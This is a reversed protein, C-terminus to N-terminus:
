NEILDIFYNLDGSIVGFRPIQDEDQEPDFPRDGLKFQLKFGLDQAIEKAEETYYGYPWALSVIEDRKDLQDEMLDRSLRLDRRLRCLYDERSEDPQQKILPKDNEYQHLDYSHSGFTIELEHELLERMNSFSLRESYIIRTELGPMSSIIPFVIAPFDYEKLVPLAYEMFSYYGDDFTLLVSNDPYSEEQRYNFFEEESLVQYNNEALYEMQRAFDEYNMEAGSEPEGEVLHHYNLVIVEQSGQVTEVGIVVLLLILLILGITKTKHGM